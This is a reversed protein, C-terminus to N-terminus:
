LRRWVAVFVADLPEMLAQFNRVLEGKTRVPDEDANALRLLAERPQQSCVPDANTDYM